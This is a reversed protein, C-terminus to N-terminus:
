DRTEPAPAEASPAEAAPTDAAPADAADSEGEVPQADRERRVEELLTEIRAAHAISPDSRFAIEPAVRLRLARGVRGRLHAAVASLGELTEDREADSGMISVFIKAHRLDRTIDVGTVTVLGRVRPDKVGDALFGAVEERIAEAVRDPRRNDYPM